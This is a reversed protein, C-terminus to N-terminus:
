IMPFFRSVSIWSYDCGVLLDLRSVCAIGLDSSLTPFTHTGAASTLSHHSTLYALPGSLLPLPTARCGASPTTPRARAGPWLSMLNSHTDCELDLMVMCFNFNENCFLPEMHWRSAWLCGCNYFICGLILYFVYIFACLVISTMKEIYVIGENCWWWISCWVGELESICQVSSSTPSLVCINLKLYDISTLRAILWVMSEAIRLKCYDVNRDTM